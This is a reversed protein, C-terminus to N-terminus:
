GTHPETIRVGVQREESFFAVRLNYSDRVERDLKGVATLAGSNADISFVGERDGDLIKFEGGGATGLTVSGM